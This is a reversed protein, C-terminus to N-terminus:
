ARRCRRLAQEHDITEAAKEVLSVIDGMGLIRNAVRDPHSRSSRDICSAWISFIPPMPPRIPMSGPIPWILFCTAGAGRAVRKKRSAKLLDPNKREAPTMSSIIARQRKFRLICRVMASMIFAIPCPLRPMPCARPLMNPSPPTGPAGLNPPMPPLKGGFQKELAAIQEPTPEPMGGLICRVMASMIFAIPCPLRPMPCARPLMNPSPPPPLKGGFQKELAAIQEPTPEPMGGPMGGGMMKGM